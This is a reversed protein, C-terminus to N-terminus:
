LQLDGRDLKDRGADPPAARHPDIRFNKAAAGRALPRLQMLMAGAGNITQLRWSLALVDRWFSDPLFLSRLADDNAEGLASEFRALWTEAFVAIDETKDLM